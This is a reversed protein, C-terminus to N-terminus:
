WQWWLGLCWCGYLLCVFLIFIEPASEAKDRKEIEIEVEVADVADVADWRTVADVADVAYQVAPSETNRELERGGGGKSAMADHEPRRGEAAEKGQGKEEEGM